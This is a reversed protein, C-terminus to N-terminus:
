LLIDSHCHAFSFMDRVTVSKDIFKARATWTDHEMSCEQRLEHGLHDASKVWPLSKGSLMLLAPYSNQVTKGSFLICKSKSKSPDDNTSFVINHKEAFRETVKLMEQLASRSPAVLIADDAYVTVGVVIDIMRCGLGLSRLEILDEFHVCWSTPSIVSDLKSGNTPSFPEAVM